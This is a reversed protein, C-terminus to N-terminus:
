LMAQRSPRLCHFVKWREGMISNNDSRKLHYEIYKENYLAEFISDFRGAAAGDSVKALTEYHDASYYTKLLGFAADKQEKEAGNNAVYLVLLAACLLVIAAFFIGKRKM